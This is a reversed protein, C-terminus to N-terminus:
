STQVNNLLIKIKETGYIQLNQWSHWSLDIGPIVWKRVALYSNPTEWIFLSHLCAYKEKREGGAEEGELRVGM